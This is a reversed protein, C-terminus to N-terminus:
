ARKKNNQLFPLAQKCDSTQTLIAQDEAYVFYTLM